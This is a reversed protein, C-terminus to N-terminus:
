LGKLRPPINSSTMKTRPDNLLYPLNGLSPAVIFLKACNKILIWFISKMIGRLNLKLPLKADVSHM